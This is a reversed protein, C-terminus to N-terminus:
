NIQNITIHEQRLTDLTMNLPHTSDVENDRYAGIFFLAKTQRDTIIVELLNLTASDAWQLDDLFLVLPHEPQCFVRIFDQFVLNFRNQSETAGLIPVPSQPGIILQVDPIVDIIVQGNPALATLLKKRCVQLQTDSETLLQQVLEGFANVLASYPINRQFQDFKGSIFYGKKEALSKYIEKVLLSKGIGPYGTVLMIQTQKSVKDFTNLLTEIEGERGYLKQPIHFRESIDHQALIFPEHQGQALRTKCKELDAKIGWASQYRDEATKALLKMIIKSVAQPIEPNLQAPLVPQKAIHYHVLEMEDTTEFPLKGTLLQYFLRM